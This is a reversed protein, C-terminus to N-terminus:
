PEDRSARGLTGDDPRREDGVYMSTGKMIDLGVRLKAAAERAAPMKSDVAHEFPPPDVTAGITGVAAGVLAGVAVGVGTGVAVLAPVLV